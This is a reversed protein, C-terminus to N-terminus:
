EGQYEPWLQDGALEWFKSLEGVEPGERKVIGAMQLESERARWM